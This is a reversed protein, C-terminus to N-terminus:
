FVVDFDTSFPKGSVQFPLTGTIRTGATPPKGSVLFIVKICFSAKTANFMGDFLAQLGSADSAAAFLGGTAAAVNQM